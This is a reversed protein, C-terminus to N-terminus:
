QSLRPVLSSERFICGVRPRPLGPGCGGVPPPGAPERLHTCVGPHHLVQSHHHLHLLYPSWVQCHNCLHIGVCSSVPSHFGRGWYKRVQGLASACGFAMLDWFVEPHRQIFSIALFVEGTCFMAPSPIIFVVCAHVVCVCVCVCARACVCVCCWVFVDCWVCMCTCVCVVGCVGCVGITLYVFAYTNVAFMMHM